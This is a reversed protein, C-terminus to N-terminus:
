GSLQLRIFYHTEINEFEGGVIEFNARRFFGAAALPASCWLVAGNQLKIFEILERLLMKGCGKRQHAPLVALGRLCWANEILDDTVLPPPQKYISAAGVFERPLFAGFHQASFLDDEPYIVTEFPQEGGFVQQRIMRRFEVRIQEITM